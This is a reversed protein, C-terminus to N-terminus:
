IEDGEVCNIGTLDLVVDVGHALQTATIENVLSPVWIKNQNKWAHAAHELTVSVASGAAGINQATNMIRASLVANEADGWGAVNSINIDVYGIDIDAQRLISKVPNAFTEGNLLVEIGDGLHVSLNALSFRVVVGAEKEARTITMDSDIMSLNNLPTDPLITNMPQKSQYASNGNTAVDFFSNSHLVLKLEGAVDQAPLM